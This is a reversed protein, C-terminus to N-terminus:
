QRQATKCSLLDHVFCLTLQLNHIAVNFLGVQPCLSALEVEM